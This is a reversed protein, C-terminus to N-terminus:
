QQLKRTPPSQRTRYAPAPDLLQLPRMDDALPTKNWYNPLSSNPARMTPALPATEKVVNPARLRSPTSVSPSRTPLTSAKAPIPTTSRKPIPTTSRKPVSTASGRPTPTTVKRQAPAAPQCAPRACGPRPLATVKRAPAATATPPKIRSAAPQPLQRRPVAAKPDVTGSKAVAGPGGDSGWAASIWQRSAIIAEAFERTMEGTRFFVDFEHTRLANTARRMIETRAEPELREATCIVMSRAKVCRDGMPVSIVEATQGIVPSVEKAIAALMKKEDERMEYNDCGTIPITHEMIVEGVMEALIKAEPTAIAAAM